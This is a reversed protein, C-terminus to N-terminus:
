VTEGPHIKEGALGGWHKSRLGSAMSPRYKFCDAVTKAPAYVRVTGGPRAHDLIGFSYGATSFQCFRLPRDRSRPFNTARPLALFRGLLPDYIRGSMHGLGRDDLREHGTFGRLTLRNAGDDSVNRMLM